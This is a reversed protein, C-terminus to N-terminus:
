MIEGLWPLLLNQILLKRNLPASLHQRTEALRKAQSFWFKLAGQKDQYRQLTQNLYSCIETKGDSQVWPYDEPSRSQPHTAWRICEWNLQELIDILYELYSSQQSAWDVLSSLTAAPTKLFQLFVKRQEWIEEEALFLAKGWSGQSLHACILVKQPDLQTQQTLLTQIDTVSFPKLRLLQCRSVLTPLLLSPDKTTLFFIWGKPTEELMKLMSNAAQLTMQDVNPILIIRYPSQYAGFGLSGKLKRLQDIKLSSTNSAEGETEPTIETFDVQTGALFKVCAPCKGCPQLSLLPNAEECFFWQALFYAVSRKGIGAQGSFLLVSPIKKQIKWEKMAKFFFKGHHQLVLSPLQSIPYSSPMKKNV